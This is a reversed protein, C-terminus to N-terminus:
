KVIIITEEARPKAAPIEGEPYGVVISGVCQYKEEIGYQAKIKLGEETKNFIQGACNIWCTGLDISTAALFINEMALAADAIPAIVTSDSFVVIITPAGYFPSTDSGRLDMGLQAVKKNLEENQIVLFKWPQENRASPAYLGAELIAGLQEDSIQEPKYAKVSRRKLITKITENM